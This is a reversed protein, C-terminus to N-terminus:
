AAVEPAEFLYRGDVGLWLPVESSHLVVQVYRPDHEPGNGTEIWWGRAKMLEDRKECKGHCTRPDDPTGCLLGANAIGNTIPDRSGGAKRAHRHQIQGLFTGDPLRGCWKGCAECCGDDPDGLGARTRVALKVRAPFGTMRRPGQLVPASRAVGARVHWARCTKDPCEEVRAGVAQGRVSDKATDESDFPKGCLRPATTRAPMGSRKM